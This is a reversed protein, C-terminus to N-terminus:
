PNLTGNPGFKSDPVDVKISRINELLYFMLSYRSLFYFLFHACYGLKEFFGNGNQFVFNNSSQKKSM